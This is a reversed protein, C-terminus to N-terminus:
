LVNIVFPIANKNQLLPNEKKVHNNIKGQIYITEFFMKTKLVDIANETERKGRKINDKLTSEFNSSIKTINSYNLRKFSPLFTKWTELRYEMPLEDITEKHERLWTRKQYLMDNISSKNLLHKNIFEIIKQVLKDKSKLVPINWPSIKSKMNTSICAIYDIGKQGNNELPFGSFSRVCGPFTHKTKISPINTQIFIFIHSLVSLLLITDRKIINQKEDQKKKILEDYKSVNSKVQNYCMKEAEDTNFSINIKRKLSKFINKISREYKDAVNKDDFVEIEELLIDEEDRTLAERSISKFGSQDYGEDTNAEINKIKYGSHKDIWADGDESLDGRKLCIQDLVYLYHKNNNIFTHALERFFSPILKVNTINCYLWNNDEETTPDRCYKECFQLISDQRKSFYYESFIM